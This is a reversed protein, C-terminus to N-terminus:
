ETELIIKNTPEGVYTILISDNKTIIGIKETLTQLDDSLDIVNFDDIAVYKGYCNKDVISEIIEDYDSPITLLYDRLAHWNLIYFLKRKDDKTKETLFIKKNVFESVIKRAYGPSIDLIAPLEEFSIIRKKTKLLLSLSM